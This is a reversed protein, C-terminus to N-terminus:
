LEMRNVSPNSVYLIKSAETPEFRAIKAYQFKSDFFYSKNFLPWLKANQKRKILEFMTTESANKLTLM